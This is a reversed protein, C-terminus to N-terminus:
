YLLKTDFNSSQKTKDNEDLPSVPDITKPNLRDSPKQTRSVTTMKTDAAPKKNQPGVRKGASSPPTSSSRSSASGLSSTRSQASGPHSSAM